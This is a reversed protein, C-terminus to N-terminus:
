RRPKVERANMCRGLHRPWALFVPLLHARRMSERHEVKNYIRRAKVFFCFVIAGCCQLYKCGAVCCFACARVCAADVEDDLLM